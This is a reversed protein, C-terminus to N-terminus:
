VTLKSRVELIVSATRHCEKFSLRYYEVGASALSLKALKKEKM